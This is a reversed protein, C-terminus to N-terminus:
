SPPPPSFSDAATVRDEFIKLIAAFGSLNLVKLVDPQVAALRIDGARSRTEKVAALLMRLGASNTHRVQELDVIIKVKGETVHKKIFAMVKPATNSNLEGHLRLIIVDHLSETIIEMYAM